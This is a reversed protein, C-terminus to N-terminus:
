YDCYGKDDEEIKNTMCKVNRGCIPCEIFTYYIDSGVGPVEQCVKSKLWNPRSFESECSDCKYSSWDDNPIKGVKEITYTM